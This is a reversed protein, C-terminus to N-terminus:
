LSPSVGNRPQSPQLAQVINARPWKSVVLTRVSLGWWSTGDERTVKSKKTVKTQERGRM